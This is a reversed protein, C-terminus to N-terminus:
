EAIPLVPGQKEVHELIEAAFEFIVLVDFSHFSNIFGTGPSNSAILGPISCGRGTTGDFSVIAATPPSM